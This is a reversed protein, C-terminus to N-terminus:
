GGPAENFTTWLDDWHWRTTVATARWFLEEIPSPSKSLSRCDEATPSPSKSGSLGASGWLLPSTVGHAQPVRAQGRLPLQSNPLTLRLHGSFRPDDTESVINPGEAVRGAGEQDSPAPPLKINKMESRKESRIERTETTRSEFTKETKKTLTDISNTPFPACNESEKCGRKPQAQKPHSRPDSLYPPKSHSAPAVARRMSNRDEKEEKEEKKEQVGQSSPPPNPAEKEIQVVVIRNSPVLTPDHEEIVM